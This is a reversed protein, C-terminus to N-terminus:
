EAVEQRGWQDAMAAAIGTYTRSRFKWRDTYPINLAYDHHVSATQGNRNRKIKPEVIQTPKLPPLGKLWLWTTKRDPHGFEYPQIVQDPRRIRTSLISRPNEIAIKPIGANMLKKVFEVADERQRPRDPFRATYEPKFWRNGSTCLYTCPPHAIMLDWGESLVDLVNGIIHKGPQETELLDCSWADHGLSAFAERVTGSFECAVLVRLPM